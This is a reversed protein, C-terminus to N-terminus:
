EWPRDTATQLALGYEGVDIFSRIEAHESESLGPGFAALLQSFLSEVEDFNPMM